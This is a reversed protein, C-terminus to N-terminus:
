VLSNAIPFRPPLYWLHPLVMNLGNRVARELDILRGFHYAGETATEGLFLFLFARSHPGPKTRARVSLKM